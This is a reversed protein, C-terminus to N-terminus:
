QKIFLISNQVQNPFYAGSNIMVEGPQVHLFFMGGSLRSLDIAAKDGDQHNHTLLRRGQLDFIIIQSHAPINEVFLLDQCPNPYCTVNRDSLEPKKVLATNRYDVAIEEASIGVPYNGVNTGDLDYIIGHGEPSAIWYSYNVYIKHNITELCLATIMLTDYPNQILNPNIISMTNLDITGVNGNITLYLTDNHIGAAKGLVALFPHVAYAGSAIEYKVLSGSNGGWPTKCVFILQDNNQFVPGIGIADPGLDIEKIFSFDALNILALKGTTSAWGGAVSVYATDGAIAIDWAEDTIEDFTAMLTLDTLSRIQVFGSTVPFQRSVILKDNHVAIKNVGTALVCKEVVGNDINIKALSDQAAVYAFGNHVLLGQVSQTHITALYGTVTTEPDFATVTVFDYPNSYAGGNVVVVRNAIDQSRLISSSAVITLLLMPLCLRKM